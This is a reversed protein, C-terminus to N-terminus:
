DPPHAETGRQQEDANAGDCWLAVTLETDTEAALIPFWGAMLEYWGMGFCVPSVVAPSVHSLFLLSQQM